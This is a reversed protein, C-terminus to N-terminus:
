ALKERILRYVQTLDSPHVRTEATTTMFNSDGRWRPVLHIHLHEAIGAGGAAGINIGVNFGHPHLAATVAQKMRRLMTMLELLEADDLEDLDGTARYPVVMLHATNYPYLNLLAFCTKGRALVLNAEDDSSQAIDAFVNGKNGQPHGVYLNRWPAWLHEM